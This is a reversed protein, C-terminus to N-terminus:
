LKKLSEHSRDGIYYAVIERTRRCIVLWIWKKNVKKLVFSWMEDFELIDDSQAEDLTESVEPLKDALELLWRYLTTPHVGFIRQIGRVSVREYYARIVMDKFDESHSKPKPDLTGYSDCNKCHYKQSGKYDKGNKVVNQSDCCPCTKIDTNIIVYVEM